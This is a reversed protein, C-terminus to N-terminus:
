TYARVTKEVASGEGGLMEALAKVAAEPGDPHPRSHTYAAHLLCAAVTEARFDYRVLVSAAGVLHNVFPRGCPRYGGAMLVHALHYADAITALDKARYGREIALDLLDSRTQRLEERRM